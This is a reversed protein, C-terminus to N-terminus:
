FYLFLPVLFAVGFLWLLPIDYPEATGLMLADMFLHSLTVELLGM